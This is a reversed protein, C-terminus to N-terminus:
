RLPAAPAFSLLPTGQAAAAAPLLAGTPIALIAARRSM